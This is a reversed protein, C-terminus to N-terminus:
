GDIVVLTGDRLVEARDASLSELAELAAGAKAEQVVGIIANLTIIILITISAAVEQLVASIICAAILLMVLIDNFQELFLRWIPTPPDKDLENRGHQERRKLVEESSLGTNVNSNLNQVVADVTTATLEDQERRAAELMRERREKEMDSAAKAKLAAEGEAGQLLERASRNVNALSLSKSSGHQMQRLTPPVPRPVSAM